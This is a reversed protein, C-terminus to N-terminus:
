PEEFRISAIGSHQGTPGYVPPITCLLTYSGDNDADGLEMEFDGSDDGGGDAGESDDYHDSITETGWRNNSRLRCALLGRGNAGTGPYYDHFYVRLWNLHTGVNDRVIPCIVTLPDTTHWNEIRGNQWYRISNRIETVEAQSLSDDPPIRVQCVTAPLIKSDTSAGAPASACMLAAALCASMFTPKM